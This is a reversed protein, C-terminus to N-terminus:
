EDSLDIGRYIESLPLDCGIMDLPIVDDVSNFAQWHWGTESRTYLEVQYEYQDVIVYAELSPLGRYYDLKTYRDYAVSTPSLVEVTLIPNLLTTDDDELQPQGRVVSLDPYVYRSAGVSVSMDSNLIEFQADDLRALLARMINVKIKSHYFTGGTMDYIVGDIFEHKFESENEFALYEEVTFLHPMPYGPVYDPHVPDNPDPDGWDYIVGDIFEHKFESREEFALYEEATFKHPRPFSDVREIAM